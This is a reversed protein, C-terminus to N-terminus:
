HRDKLRGFGLEEKAVGRKVSLVTGLQIAEFGFRSRVSFLAASISEEKAHASFLDLQRGHSSEELGSFCVIIKRVPGPLPRPLSGFLEKVAGLLFAHTSAGSDLKREASLYRRDSLGVYLGLHRCQFGNRQLLM